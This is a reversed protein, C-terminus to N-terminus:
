EQQYKEPEGILSRYNVCWVALLFCHLDVPFIFQSSSFASVGDLIRWHRDGTRTIETCQNGTSPNSSKLIFFSQSEVQVQKGSYYLIWQEQQFDRDPFIFFRSWDCGGWPKQVSFVVLLFEVWGVDVFRHGSDVKAGHIRQLYTQGMSMNVAEWIVPCAWHEAKCLQPVALSSDGAGFSLYSKLYLYCNM